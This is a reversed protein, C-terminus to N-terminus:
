VSDAATKRQLFKKQGSAGQEAPKPEDQFERTETFFEEEQLDAVNESTCTTKLPMKCSNVSIEQSKASKEQMKVGNEGNEVEFRVPNQIFEQMKPREAKYKAEEM